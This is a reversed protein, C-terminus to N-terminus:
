DEEGYIAVAITGERTVTGRYMGSTNFPMAVEGKTNIAILGGTGGMEGIEDIVQQAAQTLSMGGYQIKACVRIAAAHRIFYEGWGTCSIAAAYNDAYTGAGIVPSDGVRDFRKNIMGGTSTGAAVNGQDDLAVCGVTGFKEDLPIEAHKAQASRKQVKQLDQWRTETHFYSPDVLELGKQAAFADAGEGVLFVHESQEMVARAGSIPNKLTSVGAVAGANRDRGRMISADLENKGEHSFVAGRAANFLPSDELVRITAEVADIAEKGEELVQYGCRLANELVERYARELSDSMNAKLITGAGGHIALVFRPAADSSQALSSLSFFLSTALLLLNFFSTKM